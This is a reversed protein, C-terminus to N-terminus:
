HAVDNKATNVSPSVPQILVWPAVVVAWFQPDEKDWQSVQHAEVRAVRGETLWQAVTDREDEAFSYAVHVLDLERQVLVLDGGGFHPALSHWDIKGTERLLKQFTETQEPTQSNSM